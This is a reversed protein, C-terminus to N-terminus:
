NNSENLLAEAHVKMALNVKTALEEVDKETLKSKKGVKEADQFDSLKKEIISRVVNSWKISSHEKMKDKLEDTIALTINPVFGGYYNHAVVYINSKIFIHFFINLGSQL